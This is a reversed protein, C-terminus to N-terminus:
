ESTHAELNESVIVIDSSFKTIVNGSIQSSVHCVISGNFFLMSWEGELFFKIWSITPSSWEYRTVLVLNTETHSSEIILFNVYRCRFSPFFRILWNIKNVVPSIDSLSNIEFNADITLWITPCHIIVSNICIWIVPDEALMYDIIFRLSAFRMDDDITLVLRTVWILLLRDVLNTMSANAIAILINDFIWQLVSYSVPIYGSIPWTTFYRFFAFIHMDFWSPLHYEVHIWRWFVIEDSNITFQCEIVSSVSM